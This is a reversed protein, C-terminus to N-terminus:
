FLPHKKDIEIHSTCDISLIKNEVPLIVGGVSDYDCNMTMKLIVTLNCSVQHVAVGNNQLLRQIGQVIEVQNQTVGIKNLRKSVFNM